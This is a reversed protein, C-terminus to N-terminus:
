WILRYSILIRLLSKHAATERVVIPNLGGDVVVLLFGHIALLVQFAGFREVGLWRGAVIMFLFLAIRGGIQHLGQYIIDRWFYGM